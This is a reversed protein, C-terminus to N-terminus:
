NVRTLIHKDTQKSRAEVEVGRHTNLSQRYRGIENRETRVRHTSCFRQMDTGPTRLSRGKGFSFTFNTPILSSSPLTHRFVGQCVLLILTLVGTPKEM